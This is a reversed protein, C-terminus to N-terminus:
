MQVIQVQTNSLKQTICSCQLGKLKTKKHSYLKEDTTTCAQQWSIQLDYPQSMQVQQCLSYECMAIIADAAQRHRYSM